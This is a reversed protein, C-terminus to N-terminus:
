GMRKLIDCSQWWLRRSALSALEIQACTSMGDFELLVRPEKAKL